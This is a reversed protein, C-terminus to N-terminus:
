VAKREKIKRWHDDLGSPDLQQTAQNCSGNQAYSQLKAEAHQRQLNQLAELEKVLAQTDSHPIDSRHQNVYYKPPVSPQVLYYKM